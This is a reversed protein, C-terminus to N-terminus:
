YLETRNSNLKEYIENLTEEIENFTKDKLEEILESVLNSLIYFEDETSYIIDKAKDIADEVEGSDDLSLDIRSLVDYASKM